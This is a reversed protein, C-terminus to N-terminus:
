KSLAKAIDLPNNIFSGNEDKLPGVQTKVKAFKKAYKFFYKSNKKISSIAKHEDYEASSRYLNMLKKEIDLLEGRLVDKRSSSKVNSLTKNLRRRRRILKMKTPSNKRQKAGLKRKQCLNMLQKLACHISYILCIM